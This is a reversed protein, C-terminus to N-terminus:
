YVIAKKKGNKMPYERIRTIYEVNIIETEEVTEPKVVVWNDKIEVVTGQIPDGNLTYIICLKDLYRSVIESMTVAGKKRLKKVALAANVRKKRRTSILFMILIFYIVFYSPNM